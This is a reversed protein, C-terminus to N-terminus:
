RGRRQQMFFWLAAATGLLLMYNPVGDIFDEAQFWASLDFPQKPPETQPKDTGGGGGGGTNTGGGGSGAPPKNQTGTGGGGGGSGPAAGTPVLSGGPGPTYAGSNVAGIVQDIYATGGPLNYAGRLMADTVPQSGTSYVPQGTLWSPNARYAALQNQYDTVERAANAAAAAPNNCGPSDGHIACFNRAQNQMDAAGNICDPTNPASLCMNQTAEVMQQLFESLTANWVANSMGPALSMYGQPDGAETPQPARSGQTVGPVSTWGTGTYLMPYGGAGSSALIDGPQAQSADTIIAGIGPRWVHLKRREFAVPADSFFRGMSPGFSNDPNRLLEVPVRYRAGGVIGGPVMM